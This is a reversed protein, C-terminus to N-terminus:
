TMSVQPCEAEVKVAMVAKAATALLAATEAKVVRVLLVAKAPRVAKVAPEVTAVKVAWPDPGRSASASDVAARAM